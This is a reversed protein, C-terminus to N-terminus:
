ACCRGLRRSHYAPRDRPPHFLNHLLPIAKIILESDRNDIEEHAAVVPRSRGRVDIVRQRWDAAVVSVTRTL